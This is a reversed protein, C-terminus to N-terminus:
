AVCEGCTEASAARLWKPQPTAALLSQTYAHRPQNFIGSTPGQEVIRGQQMVIIRDAFHRVVPLDHTIFVYSLGLRTQLGALLEIIQAQISVDLASVAEDCVVLDPESALARAIAIRQRQGGSFQHPYRLAHEPRLGVLELLEVVRDRWRQRPLIDGHIAWPEAIIDQVAMRPNMSGFPDQFVMQVKRRFQKMQRADMRFIDVGNFYAAGSTADFLRLLMRAVSSKGSGSEGVIGVTEGRCVHFSVDDVARLSRRAGFMGTPLPYDKVLHEVRLVPEQALSHLRRRGAGDPAGHPLASTLTRTYDHQPHTFVQRADGAEVVKGGKMVIVRDAMSAAVELDHTILILAMGQEHQLDRLLDLIQAQVSVDLATTPEDAILVQPSLAIAMAIMVRQRQGGSFQHPYFDVRLEPERIGVRGLLEIARARAQGGHAVGHCQFVEAIQRGVTYVPNLYALPDQFIMAIRRGNIQRRAEASLRALDQGQFLISGTVIDGPPCDVLGMVTSTSVSKGSGSEGLIVLTEGARVHFSVDDVARVPDDDSLFDVTLGDICLIPHEREVNNM